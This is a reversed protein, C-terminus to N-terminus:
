EEYHVIKKAIGGFSLKLFWVIVQVIWLLLMIALTIPWVIRDSWGIKPPNTDKEWTQTMPPGAFFWQFWGTKEPFECARVFLWGLNPYLVFTIIAGLVWLITEM